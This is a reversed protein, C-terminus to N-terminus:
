YVEDHTGIDVPVILGDQILFYVTMRYSLNISVSFLGDLKGALKHLRLSPHHPNLCLLKVVKEYQKLLLPNKKFFKAAKKEYNETIALKYM